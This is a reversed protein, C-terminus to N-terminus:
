EALLAKHQAKAFQTHTHSHTHHLITASGQSWWQDRLGQCAEKRKQALAQKDGEDLKTLGIRCALAVGWTDADRSM